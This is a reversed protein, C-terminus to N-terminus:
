RRLEPKDAHLIGQGAAAAHRLLTRDGRSKLMPSECSATHDIRRELDNALGIQATGVRKSSFFEEVLNASSDLNCAPYIRSL